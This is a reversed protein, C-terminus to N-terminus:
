SPRPSTTALQAPTIIVPIADSYRVRGYYMVKALAWWHAGPRATAPVTVEFRLMVPMQPMVSFGRAAPSLMEWIGWPSVLQAEGHLESALHSTLSVTLEGREGPALRLEPTVVALDVEAAAASFDAQMVELAEEPPLAPDPWRREGVAIMATDEILHRHTDRIRAAAFYRGPSTGPEARVTLDWAAYGGPALEYRLDRGATVTIGDPVVLEVVGSAPEPGCGVTLTLSDAQGPDALAARAPSFHVAVPLNGAPAPGQGHLWYRAYVPEILPMRAYGAPRRGTRVALTTTGFAPMDVVAAGDVVPVADGDAEELLDTLWAASIPQALRVRATTPRGATERLRVTVTAEAAADAPAADAISRGSALPNGRPKLTSLTVNAPEVALLSGGGDAPGGRGAV